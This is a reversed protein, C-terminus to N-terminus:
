LLKLREIISEGALQWEGEEKGVEESRKQFTEGGLGHKQQQTSVEWTVGRERNASGSGGPRDSAPDIGDCSSGCRLDPKQRRLPM